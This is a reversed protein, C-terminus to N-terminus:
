EDDSSSSIVSQRHRRVSDLLYESKAMIISTLNLLIGLISCQAVVQFSTVCHVYM